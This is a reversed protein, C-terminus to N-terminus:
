NNNCQIEEKNIGFEKLIENMSYWRGDKTPYNCDEQGWIWKYVKLLTEVKIGITDSLKLRNIIDNPEEGCCVCYLGKILEIAEKKAYSYKKKIDDSIEKHSILWLSQERPNFLCKLIEHPQPYAIFKQPCSFNDHDNKTPLGLYLLVEM